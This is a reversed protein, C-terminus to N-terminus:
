GLIAVDSVDVVDILLSVDHRILFSDLIILSLLQLLDDCAPNSSVTPHSHCQQNYKHGTATHISQLYRSYLLSHNLLCVFFLIQLM